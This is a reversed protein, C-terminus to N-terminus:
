GSAFVLLAQWWEGASCQALAPKEAHKCGDYILRFHEPTVIRGIREEERVFRFRPAKPLYGWEHAVGLAAKLHRLDRNVTAPAVTSERKKGPELRRQAVFEDITATTIKAVLAPRVLREFAALSLKVLDQSRGSLRPLIKQEYETRFESWPKRVEHRYTGAALEGEIKRQFKEAMSKSGIRKSRRKGDPDLWGVSWPCKDGLKRRQRHDQFLWAQM